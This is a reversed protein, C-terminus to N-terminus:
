CFNIAIHVDISIKSGKQVSQDSKTTSDICFNNQQKM